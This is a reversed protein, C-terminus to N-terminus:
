KKQRWESGVEVWSRSPATEAYKKAFLKANFEAQLKVGVGLTVDVIPQVIERIVGDVDDNNALPEGNIAAELAVLLRQELAIADCVFDGLDECVQTVVQETIDPVQSRLDKIQTGRAFSEFLAVRDANDAEMLAVDDSTVTNGDPPLDLQGNAGEGVVQTALLDRIAPRRARMRDMTEYHEDPYVYDEDALETPLPVEEDVGDVDACAGLAWLLAMAGFLSFIQSRSFM